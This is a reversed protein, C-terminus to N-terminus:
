SKFTCCFAKYFIDRVREEERRLEEELLEEFTKKQASIESIYGDTSPVVKRKSVSVKPFKKFEQRQAFFFLYFLYVVIFRLYKSM